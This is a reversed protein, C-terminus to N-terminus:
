LKLVVISMKLFFIRRADIPDKRVVNKFGLVDFHAVYAPKKYEDLEMNLLM